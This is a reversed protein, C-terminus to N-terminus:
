KKINIYLFALIVPVQVWPILVLVTGVGALSCCLEVVYGAGINM